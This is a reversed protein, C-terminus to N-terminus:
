FITRCLVASRSLLLLQLKAFEEASEGRESRRNKSFPTGAIFSLSRRECDTAVDAPPEIVAWPSGNALSFGLSKSLEM